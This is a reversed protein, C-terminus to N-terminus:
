LKVVCILHLTNAQGFGRRCADRFSGNGGIFVICHAMISGAASTKYEITVHKRVGAKLTVNIEIAKMGSTFHKM